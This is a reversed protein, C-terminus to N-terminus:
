DGVPKIAVRNGKSDLGLAAIRRQKDLASFQSDPVYRRLWQNDGSAFEPRICPRGASIRNEYMSAHDRLAAYIVKRDLGLDAFYAEIAREVITKRTAM